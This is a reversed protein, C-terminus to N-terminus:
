HQESRLIISQHIISRIFGRPRWDQRAGDVPGDRDDGQVPRLLEVGERALQQFGQM